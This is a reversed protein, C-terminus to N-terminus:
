PKTCQFLYEFKTQDQEWSEVHWNKEDWVIMDGRHPLRSLSTLESQRIAVAITESKGSPRASVLALAVSVDNFVRDM